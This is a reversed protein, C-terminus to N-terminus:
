NTKRDWLIRLSKGKWGCSINESLREVERIQRGIWCYEEVRGKGNVPFIKM